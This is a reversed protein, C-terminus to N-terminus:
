DADLQLLPLKVTFKTGEGEASEFELIGNLQQIINYSVSLGLGTGEGTTKTTFFPDMIKDKISDPIGVGNDHISICGYGANEHEADHEFFISIRIEGTNSIAQAANMLLNIFVQSLSNNNALVVPDDNYHKALTIDHKFYPKLIPLANEVCQILVVPEFSDLKEKRSFDRLGQVIHVVREVGSQTENILNDIDNEVFSLNARKLEYEQLNELAKIGTLDLTSKDVSELVSQYCDIYHQMITIYRNLTNINTKIFAMPNNIEHAIGAALTGIGKLKQSQVLASQTEKLNTIDRGEPILYIVNGNDDFYPTLSFDVYINEGNDGPHIAEFRVQKKESVVKKVAEKLHNQLDESHSWWPADWFPKNIIDKKEVNSAKLSSDNADIVNGEIDLLGIFQYSQNFIAEYKKSLTNNLEQMESYHTVDKAIAYVTEDLLNPTANWLLHKITGDKALYRNYFNVVHEGDMLKEFAKETKQRDESYVFEIFPKYLLDAESYGLVTNFAPNLSTFCGEISSKCAMVLTNDWLFQYDKELLQVHTLDQITGLFIDEESEGQNLRLLKVKVWILEGSQDILRKKFEIVTENSSSFSTFRDLNEAVDEPPTFDKLFNSEVENVSYGLIKSFEHNCWLIQGNNSIITRGLPDHEFLDLYYKPLYKLVQLLEIGM